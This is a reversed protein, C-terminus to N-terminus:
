VADYKNIEYLNMYIYIYIYIYFWEHSFIHIQTETFYCQQKEHWNIAKQTCGMEAHVYTDTM